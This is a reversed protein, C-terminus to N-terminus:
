APSKDCSGECAWGSASVVLAYFGAALSFSNNTTHMSFGWVTKHRSRPGGPHDVDCRPRAARRVQRHPIATCAVVIMSDDVRAPLATMGESVGPNLNDCRRGTPCRAVSPPTPTLVALRLMLACQRLRGPAALCFPLANPQRQSQA